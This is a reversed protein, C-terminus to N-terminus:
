PFGEVSEGTSPNILHWSGDPKTAVKWRSKPPPTPPLNACHFWPVRDPPETGRLRGAYTGSQLSSSIEWAHTTARATVLPLGQKSFQVFRSGDPHRAILLEGVLEPSVASPRWIAATERRIWGAQEIAFAPLHVTQCGTAAMSLLGVVLFKIWEKWGLKLSDMGSIVKAAPM